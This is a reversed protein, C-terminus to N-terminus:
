EVVEEEEVPMATDLAEKANKAEIELVAIHAENVEILGQYYAIVDEYPLVEGNVYHSSLLQKAEEIEKELRENKEELEKIKEAINNASADNYGVYLLDNIANYEADSEEKAIKADIYAEWATVKEAYAAKVTENYAKIKEQLAADGEKLVNFWYEYDAILENENEIMKTYNAINYELSIRNDVATEYAAKKAPADAETAEEWAKKADAEATKAATLATNFTKLDENWIKINYNSNEIDNSIILEVKTLDAAEYAFVLENGFSAQYKDYTYDVTFYGDKGPELAYGTGTIEYRDWALNESSSHYLASNFATGYVHNFINYPIIQWEGNEDIFFQTNTLRYFDDELVAKAATSIADEDVKANDYNDKAVWYASNVDDNAKDIATYQAKLTEIDETYNSYKKYAEISVNNLAIENNKETITKELQTKADAFNAELKVLITKYAALYRKADLLDEVTNKYTNALNKLEAAEAAENQKILSELQNQANMLNKQANLLDTEIEIAQKDINAQIQALDYEAQKKKKELDIKDSELETELIALEIEAKQNEIQKAQTKAELLAANANALLTETQAQAQALAALAKQKEANEKRVTTVTPSEESDICSTFIPSAVLAGVLAYIALFKKRM